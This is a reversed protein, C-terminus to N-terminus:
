REKIRKLLNYVELLLSDVYCHTWEEVAGEDYYRALTAGLRDKLAEGQRQLESGTSVIEDVRLQSIRGSALNWDSCWTRVYDGRVFSECSTSFARWDLLGFHLAAGPFVEDQGRGEWEGRDLCLEKAASRFDDGSFEGGGSFAKLCCHLSPGGAPLLECLGAFHDFRQWGTLVLGEVRPVKGGEETRLEETLRKWALVNQVHRDVPVVQECSSSAGKFAGAVLVADFVEGYRKWMGAPFHLTTTYQWVVPTVLSLPSSRARRLEEADLSRLMDDWMLVKLGPRLRHVTKVVAEMHRLFLRSPTLEPQKSIAEASEEGKALHWVEDGGIHLAPCDPHLSLLSQIVQSLLGLVPSEEGKLCDSVRFCEPRDPLERLHALHDHKLLYEAHGLTQVLPVVGMGLSGALQLFRKVRPPDWAEPEAAGALHPCGPLLIADEYEVLIGGVGRAAVWPLWELLFSEKPPAGKLDLHVLPRSLEM